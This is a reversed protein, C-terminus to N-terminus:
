KDGLRGTELAEALLGLMFVPSVRHRVSGEGAWLALAPDALLVTFGRDSEARVNVSVEGGSRDCHFANGAAEAPVKPISSVGSETLLMGEHSKVEEGNITM